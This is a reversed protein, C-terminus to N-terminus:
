SHANERIGGGSVASGTVLAEISSDIIDLGKMLLEDEITLPPLFKLVHSEAGCLEIILHRKFCERAVERAMGKIEIDLGYILGRGRVTCNLQPYKDAIEYLRNRLIKEKDQISQSLSDTKWYSFLETGAVFAVNNGRLTGTHEGPQWIDLDPKMLVLAIPMGGGISKSLTIIDPSIGAEEFSFYTGSRGNGVQIDDVILLIDFERCIDEIERLWKGSAVNIGGEAQITELLIAAPLDVGSSQDELFKRLYVTTDVDTGLYGDFPM